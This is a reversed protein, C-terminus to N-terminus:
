KKRRGGMRGKRGEQRREMLRKKTEKMGEKM